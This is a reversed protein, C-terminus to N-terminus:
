FDWSRAPFRRHGAPWPVNLNLAPSRIDVIRHEQRYDEITGILEACMLHDKKCDEDPCDCMTYCVSFEDQSYVCYYAIVRNILGLTWNHNSFVLGYETDEFNNSKYALKVENQFYLIQMTALLEPSDIPVTKWSIQTEPYETSVVYSDLMYATNGNNLLCFGWHDFRVQRWFETAIDIQYYFKPLEDKSFQGLYFSKIRRICDSELYEENYLPYDSAVLYVAFFGYGPCKDTIQMDVQRGGEDGPCDETNHKYTGPVDTLEWTYRDRIYTPYDVIITWHYKPYKVKEPITSLVCDSNADAAESLM